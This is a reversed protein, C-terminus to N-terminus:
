GIGLSGPPNRDRRDVVTRNEESHQPKGVHPHPNEDETHPEEKSDQPESSHPPQETDSRGGYDEAGNVAWEEFAGLPQWAKGDKEFTLSAHLMEPSPEGELPDTDRVDGERADEDVRAHNSHYDVNSAIERPLAGVTGRQEDLEVRAGEPSYHRFSYGQRVKIAKSYPNADATAHPTNRVFSDVVGHFDSEEPKGLIWLAVHRHPYGTERASQLWVGAYEYESLSRRLNRMCAKWGERFGNYHEQPPIWDGKQTKEPAVLSLWVTTLPEDREIAHREVGYCKGIRVEAKEHTFRPSQGTRQRYGQLERFGCVAEIWSRGEDISLSLKSNDSSGGYDESPRDEEPCVCAAGAVEAGSEETSNTSKM